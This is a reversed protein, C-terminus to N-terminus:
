VQLLLHDLASVPGLLTGGQVAKSADTGGEAYSGGLGPFNEAYVEAERYLKRPTRPAGSWWVTLHLPRCGTSMLCVITVTPRALSM